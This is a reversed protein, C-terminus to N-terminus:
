ETPVEDLRHIKAAKNTGHVCIAIPNEDFQTAACQGGHHGIGEIPHWVDGQRGRVMRTGAQFAQLTGEQPKPRRMDVDVGERQGRTRARM